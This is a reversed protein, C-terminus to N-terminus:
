RKALLCAATSVVLGVAALLVALIFEDMSVLNIDYSPALARMCPTCTAYTHCHM